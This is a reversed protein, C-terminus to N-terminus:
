SAHSLGAHSYELAVTILGPLTMITASIPPMKKINYFFFETWSDESFAGPSSRGLINRSFETQSDKPNTWGLVVFDCCLLNKAEREM